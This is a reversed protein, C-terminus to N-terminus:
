RRTAPPRVAASRERPPPALDVARRRRRRRARVRLRLLLSGHECYPLLLVLPEGSVVGILTIVNDHPSVRSMIAAERLLLERAKGAESKIRCEAVKAAM